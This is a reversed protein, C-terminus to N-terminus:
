KGPRTVDEVKEQLQLWRAVLWCLLAWVLGALWGALVDTPYHVGLYVRSAGVFLTLMVAVSLVYIQLKRNPMVAALLSGLTLYVVAALLSHGSPFSSSSVHSLHPVLSPRPRGFLNKLLISLVAGSGTAALMFVMMRLKGQLCLFIAIVLTTFTLWAIGGLATADRGMEEVWLPGIPDAPNNSDRLIQVSWHDFSQTDGELVEDALEIFGWTSATGITLVVLVIVELHPLRDLLSQILRFIKSYV